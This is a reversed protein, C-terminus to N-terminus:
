LFVNNKTCFNSAQVMKVMNRFSTMKKNILFIIFIAINQFIIVILFLQKSINHWMIRWFDNCYASKSSLFCKKNNDINFITQKTSDHHM